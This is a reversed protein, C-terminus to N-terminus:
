KDKVDSETPTCPTAQSNAKSAYDIAAKFRAKDEKQPVFGHNIGHGSIILGFIGVKLKSEISGYPFFVVRLVDKITIGEDNVTFITGYVDTFVENM